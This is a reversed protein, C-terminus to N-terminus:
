SGDSRAAANPDGVAVRLQRVSWVRWLLRRRMRGQRVVPTWPDGGALILMLPNPARARAFRAIRRLCARDRRSMRSDGGPHTHWDGLYSLRRGSARYLTAIEDEQYDYDPILGHERHVANPGPGVVHTAVPEGSGARWYGLLVGGTEKPLRADLLGCETSMFSSNRTPASWSRSHMRRRSAESSRMWYVRRRRRTRPWSGNTNRRWRPALPASTSRNSGGGLRLGIRMRRDSSWSKPLRALRRANDREHPRWVRLDM